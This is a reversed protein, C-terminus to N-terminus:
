KLSRLADSISEAISSLEPNIEQLLSDNIIQHINEQMGRLRFIAFNRTRAKIQADSLYKKIRRGM